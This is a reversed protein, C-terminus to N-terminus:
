PVLAGGDSDGDSRPVALLWDDGPIHPFGQFNLLNSFKDRCTAARKDCGAILKVSHGPALGPIPQWFTIRRGAGEPLDHKIPAVLGAAPGGTVRLVGGAFWGATYPSDPTLVAINAVPLGEVTTDAVYVPDSLDIGCNADGLVASCTRLYSRGQPQNLAETLGRLDAQFAGGSRTIEGLSGKFRIARAVVNDWQVQWITVAAGDYRGAAIDAETIADSSLAGAAETNNVSLGTASSLARASMGSDAAFTIGDFALSVDHDTFGLTVGDKRRIAWCQCTRTLGGALHASLDAASM